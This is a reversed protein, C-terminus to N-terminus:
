TVSAVPLEAFCIVWPPPSEGSHINGVVWAACVSAVGIGRRGLGVATGLGRGVAMAVATGEATGVCTGVWTGVGAGALLGTLVGALAGSAAGVSGFAAEAEVRVEWVGATVTALVGGAEVLATEPAPTEAVAAAGPITEGVAETDTEGAGAARGGNRISVKAAPKSEV